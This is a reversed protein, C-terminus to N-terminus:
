LTVKGEKFRMVIHIKRYGSNSGTLCGLIASKKAILSNVRQSFSQIGNVQTDRVAGPLSGQM